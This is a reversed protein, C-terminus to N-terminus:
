SVTKSSCYLGNKRDRDDSNNTHTIYKEVAGIFQSAYVDTTEKRHRAWNYIDSLMDVEQSTRETASDRAIANIISEVIASSDLDEM